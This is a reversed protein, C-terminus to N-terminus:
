PPPPPGSRAGGCQPPPNRGLVRLRRCAEDATADDGRARALMAQGQLGDALWPNRELSRDFAAAAAANSGWKREIHGLYSWASPDAPDRRTAERALALSRRAHPESQLGYFAETRSGVYAVEPWPPLLAHAKDFSAVSTDLFARYLFFEGVLLAGAAAVSAVAGVGVLVRWGGGGGSLGSISPWRQRNAAGLALLALPVLGVTQPEVLMFLGITLSFAALPGGSTRAALALWAGLLVLGVAGTTVAYEVVWNHPDKWASNGAGAIEPTYRSSTAEQFRGPGWGLVPRELASDRSIRWVALRGEIDRATSRADVVRESASVTEEERGGVKDDGAQAGVPALALGIGAAALIAAGRVMGPRSEMAARVASCIVAVAALAIASRAGSAQAAGTLVLVAALWFLSKRERGVRGSVLWLAGAVLAGLHVPAGMLGGSRLGGAELSSELSPPVLNRVQLWAVVANMLAAAIIALVVQRRREENIVSGLAWAAALTVVFLFGTGWNAAGTLSLIPNDSLVTSVGAAGVFLSAAVAATSRARVLRGLAVLGPVILVLCVAAKPAWFRHYNEPSFAVPLLFAAAVALLGVDAGSATTAGAGDIRVSAAAEESREGM